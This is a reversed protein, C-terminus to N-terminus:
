SLISLIMAGLSNMFCLSSSPPYAPLVTGHLVEQGGALHVHRMLYGVRILEIGNLRIEQEKTSKGFFFADKCQHPREQPSCAQHITPNCAAFEEWGIPGQM